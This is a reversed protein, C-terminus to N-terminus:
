VWVYVKPGQNVILNKNLGYYMSNCHLFHLKQKSHDTKSRLIIGPVESRSVQFKLPKNEEQSSFMNEILVCNFSRKGMAKPSM